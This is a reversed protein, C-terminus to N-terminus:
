TASAISVVFRNNISFHNWALVMQLFTVVNKGEVLMGMFGNGTINNSEAM